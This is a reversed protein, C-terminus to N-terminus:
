KFLFLLVCVFFNQIPFVLSLHYSLLFLSVAIEKHIYVKHQAKLSVSTSISIPTDNLKKRKEIKRKHLFFLM